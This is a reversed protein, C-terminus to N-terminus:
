TGVAQAGRREESRWGSGDDADLTLAATLNDISPRRPDFSGRFDREWFFDRAATRQALAARDKRKAIEGLDKRLADFAPDRPVTPVTVAVPRYPKQAPQAPAPAAPAPAAPRAPTRQAPQAPAPAPAPAQALIPQAALGVVAVIPLLLSRRM